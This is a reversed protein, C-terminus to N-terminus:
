NDARIGAVLARANALKKGLSDLAAIAADPSGLGSTRVATIDYTMEDLIENLETSQEERTPM